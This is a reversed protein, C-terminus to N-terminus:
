VLTATVLIHTSVVATDTLGHHTIPELVTGPPLLFLLTTLLIQRDTSRYCHVVTKAFQM